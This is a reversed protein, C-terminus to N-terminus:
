SIEPLKSGILQNQRFFFLYVFLVLQNSFEFFIHIRKEHFSTTFLEYNLRYLPDGIYFTVYAKRLFFFLAWVAKM